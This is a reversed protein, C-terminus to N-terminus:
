IVIVGKEVQSSYEAAQDLAEWMKRGSGQFRPKGAADFLRYTFKGAADLQVEARVIKPPRPTIQKLNDPM